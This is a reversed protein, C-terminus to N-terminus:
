SSWGLLPQLKYSGYTLQLSFFKCQFPNSLSSPTLLLTKLIFHCKSFIVVIVSISHWMYNQPRENDSKIERFILVLFM